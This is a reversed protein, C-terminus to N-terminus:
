DGSNARGSQAQLRFRSSTKLLRLLARSRANSLPPLLSKSPKSNKSLGPPPANNSIAASKPSM